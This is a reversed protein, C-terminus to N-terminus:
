DIADDERASDAASGHARLHQCVCPIVGCDEPHNTAEFRECEEKGQVRCGPKGPPENTDQPLPPKQKGNKERAHEELRAKIDQLLQANGDDDKADEAACVRLCARLCSIM